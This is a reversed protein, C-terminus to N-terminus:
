CFTCGSDMHHFNISCWTGQLYTLDCGSCAGPLMCNKSKGIEAEHGSVFDSSWFLGCVSEAIVMRLAAQLHGSTGGADSRGAATAPCCRPICCVNQVGLDWWIQCPPSGSILAMLESGCRKLWKGLIVETDTANLSFDSAHAHEPTERFESM